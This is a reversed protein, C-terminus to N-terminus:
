EFIDNYRNNRNDDYHNPRARKPQSHPNPDEEDEYEVYENANNDSNFRGIPNRRNRRMLSTVKRRVYGRATRKVQRLAAKKGTKLQNKAFKVGTRLVSRGASKIMPTASRGVSRIMSSFFKPIAPVIGKLLGSVIGGLGYGRQYRYGSFVPFGSGTQKCNSFVNSYFQRESDM